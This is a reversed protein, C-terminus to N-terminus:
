ACLIHMLWKLCEFYQDAMISVWKLFSTINRKGEKEKKGKKKEKERKFFFFFSIGIPSNIPNGRKLFHDFYEKEQWALKKLVSLFDKKEVVPLSYVAM